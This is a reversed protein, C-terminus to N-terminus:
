PKSNKAQEPAAEPAPEPKSLRILPSIIAGLLVQLEASVYHDPKKSVWESHIGGEPDVTQKRWVNNHHEKYDAPVKDGVLWPAGKGTRLRELIDMVAPKAFRFVKVRLNQKVGAALLKQRADAQLGEFVTEQTMMWLQLIRRNQADTVTFNNRDTSECACWGYRACAALVEPRRYGCDVIVCQPKVGQEIRWSELEAFGGIVKAALQRSAADTAWARAVAYIVEGQHFDAGIFRIAEEPWAKAADYSSTAIEVTSGQEKTEAELWPQGMKEGWFLRMPKEEGRQLASKANLYDRVLDAWRRTESILQSWHASYHGPEPNPNTAVFHGGMIHKRTTVDDRWKAFCYQCTYCVSEALKTWHWLGNPCTVADTTWTVGYYKDGPKVKGTWVMQQEKNCAPCAVYWECATGRKFRVDIDDGAHDPCSIAVIQRNWFSSVREQAKQVAGSSFLGVEDLYLRRVSQSALQSMQGTTSGGGVIYLPLGSKWYINLKKLKRRDVPLMKFTEDCSELMPMLRSYWLKEASEKSPTVWIAGSPDNVLSWILTLLGLSSGGTQASKMITINRVTTDTFKMIPENLWPLNQRDFPGPYQSEAGFEVNSELWDVISGAPPPTLSNLISCTFSM